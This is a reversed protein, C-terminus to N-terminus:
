HAPEQLRPLIKTEIIAAIERMDISDKADYTYIMNDWETIGISEYMGRRWLQHSRYQEDGMMGCYEWYFENGSFDLFTFDPALEYSGIHIVQEYRFPINYIYLQEAILLEARTRVALGRSTTHKKEEPRYTSREYPAAAWKHQRLSSGEPLHDCAFQESLIMDSVAHYPKRMRTRVAEFGMPLLGAKAHQLVRINQDLLKLAVRLYEKLALQHLLSSTETITRRRYRIQGSPCIGDPISHMFVPKKRRSVRILSGPPCKSLSHKYINKQSILIQLLMDIEKIIFDM